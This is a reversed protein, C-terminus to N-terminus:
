HTWNERGVQEGKPNVGLLTKSLMEHLDPYGCGKM